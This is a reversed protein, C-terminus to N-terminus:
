ALITPIDWGKKKKEERLFNYIETTENWLIKIM